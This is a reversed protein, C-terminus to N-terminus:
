EDKIKLIKTDIWKNNSNYIKERKTYKLSLEMKTPEAYSLKLPILKRVFNNSRYFTFLPTEKELKKEWWEKTYIEQPYDIDSIGKTILEPPSGQKFLSYFKPVIFYAKDYIGELKFKGLTTDSCDRPQLPKTLFLSDTDSYLLNKEVKIKYKHMVIRAYSTIAAAIHVATNVNKKALEDSDILDDYTDYDIIENKLAKQLGLENISNNYTIMYRDDNIEHIERIDHKFCLYKLEDKSVILTIQHTLKMGFKGYLSNNFLKYVINEVSNKPYKKRNNYMDKVYDKFIIEANFSYGYIPEIKYGNKVALKAEESFIWQTWTGSPQILNGFEDKKTVLGIYLDDPSTIKALMFGFFDKLQFGKKYIPLGIPMKFKSMVYPYLANIDYYYVKSYINTPKYIESVGGFYCSRIKEDIHPPLKAIKPKKYYTNRFIHLAMSAITINNLIDANVQDYLKLFRKLVQDLILVDNKLYELLKNKYDKKFINNLTNWTYDWDMKKMNITKALKDLSLPMINLSERLFIDKGQKTLKIEYITGDRVILKIDIDKIYEVLTKLILIGDFRNMNHFYLVSLEQTNDFIYNIFEYVLNNSYEILKDYHYESGIDFEEIYFDQYHKNLSVGLAIPIHKGDYLITEIDAAYMYEFYQIYSVKKLPTIWYNKNMNNNKIKNHNNTIM